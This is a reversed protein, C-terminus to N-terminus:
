GVVDPIRLSTLKRLERLVSRAAEKAESRSLGEKRYYGVLAKRFLEDWMPRFQADGVELIVKPRNIDKSLRDDPATARAVYIGEGTLAQEVLIGQKVIDFELVFFLEVPRICWVMLAVTGEHDEIQGWQFRFDGPALKQHARIFADIDPRRSTDLLVAPLQKGGHVGVTSIM